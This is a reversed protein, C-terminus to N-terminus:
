LMTEKENINDISLFNKVRDKIEEEEQDNRKVLKPNMAKRVGKKTNMEERGEIRHGIKGTGGRRPCRQRMNKKSVKM